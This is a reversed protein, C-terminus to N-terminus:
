GSSEVPKRFFKFIYLTFKPGGGSNVSYVTFTYTKTIKETHKHFFFFLVTTKAYNHKSAVRFNDRHVRECSIYGCTKNYICSILCQINLIFSKGLIKQILYQNERKIWWTSYGFDSNRHYSM